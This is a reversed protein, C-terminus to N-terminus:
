YEKSSNESVDSALQDRLRKRARNLLVGVHNVTVGMAEGIEAYSLQQDFRLCVAEALDDPLSAIALRLREASEVNQLKEAPSEDVDVAESLKDATRQRRSRLLRLAQRTAIRRLLAEWNQVPERESFRMAALFTEQFCDQADADSGLLRMATKWVVDGHQRIIAEWNLM